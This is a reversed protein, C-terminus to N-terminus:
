ISSGLRGPNHRIAPLIERSTSSSFSIRSYMTPSPTAEPPRKTSSNLDAWSAPSSGLCDLPRHRGTYLCRYVPFTRSSQKPLEGAEQASRLLEVFRGGSAVGEGVIYERIEKEDLVDRSISGAMLCLGPRKPDDMQDLVTKFLARVGLKASTQSFLATERQSM